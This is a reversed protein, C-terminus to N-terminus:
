WYIATLNRKQRISIPYNNAHSQKEAIAIVVTAKEQDQLKTPVKCELAM